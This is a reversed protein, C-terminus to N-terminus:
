VDVSMKDLEILAQVLQQQLANKTEEFKDIAVPTVKAKSGPKGVATVKREASALKAKISKVEKSKEKLKSKLDTNAEQLNENESELEAVQAKLKIVKSSGTKKGSEGARKAKVSKKAMDIRM